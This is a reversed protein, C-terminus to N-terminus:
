DPLILQKGYKVTRFGAYRSKLELQDNELTGTEMVACPLVDCNVGITVANGVISYPAFTEDFTFTSAGGNKPVIQYVVRRFVEGNDVFDIHDFFLRVTRTADEEVVAPVPSAELSLSVWVFNEAPTAPESPTACASGFAAAAIGTFLRLHPFLSRM